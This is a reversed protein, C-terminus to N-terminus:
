GGYKKKCGFDFHGTEEFLRLIGIESGDSFSLSKLIKLGFGNETYNITKPTVVKDMIEKLGLVFRQAESLQVTTFKPISLFVDNSKSPMKAMMLENREEDTM